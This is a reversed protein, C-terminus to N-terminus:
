VQYQGPVKIDRNGAPHIFGDLLFPHIEPQISASVMSKSSLIENKTKFTRIVQAPVNPIIPEVTFYRNTFSFGTLIIM